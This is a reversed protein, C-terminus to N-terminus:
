RRGLNASTRPLAAFSIRRREPNPLFFFANRKTKLKYDMWKNTVAFTRINRTRAPIISIDLITRVGGCGDGQNAATAPPQQEVTSRANKAYKFQQDPPITHSLLVLGNTHWSTYDIM